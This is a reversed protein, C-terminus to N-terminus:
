KGMSYRGVYFQSGDVLIGGFVEQGQKLAQVACAACRSESQVFDKPNPLVPAGHWMPKLVQSLIRSKTACISRVGPYVVTNLSNHTDGKGADLQSM